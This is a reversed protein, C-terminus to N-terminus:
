ALLHLIANCIVPSNLADYYYGDLVLDQVCFRITGSDRPKASNMIVDGLDDTVQELVEVNILGSWGGLVTVGSVPAMTYRNTRRDTAVSIHIKGQETCM